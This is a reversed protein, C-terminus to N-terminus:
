TSPEQDQDMERYPSILTLVASEDKSYQVYLWGNPDTTGITPERGTIEVLVRGGEVPQSTYYSRARIGQRYGGEYEHQGDVEMTTIRNHALGMVLPMSQFNMEKVNLQVAFFGDKLSNLTDFTWSVGYVEDMIQPKAPDPEVVVGLDAATDGLWHLTVQKGILYSEFTPLITLTHRTGHCPFAADGFPTNYRSDFLVRVDDALDNSLLQGPLLWDPLKPNTLKLGFYSNQGFASTITWRVAGGEVEQPTGLPPVSELGSNVADAQDELTVDSGILPSDGKVKLELEYSKGRILQLEGLALDVKEGDLYLEFAQAWANEELATVDFVRTLGVGENESTLDAQVQYEGAVEPTLRCHAWGESDTLTTARVGMDELVSWVVNLGEVGEWSESAVVQVRLLVSENNGVVPQATVSGTAGILLRTDVVEFARSVSWESSDGEDVQRVQIRYNGVEWPTDITKRWNVQGPTSVIPNDLDDAHFIQIEGGTEGRGQILFRSSVRSSEAPVCIEPKKPAAKVIFSRPTSWESEPGSGQQKVELANPGPRLPKETSFTLIGACNAPASHLVEDDKLRVTILADPMGHVEIVPRTPTKSGEQPLEFQPAEPKEEEVVFFTCVESPDSTVGDVSQTVKVTNTGPAWNATPTFDRIEGESSFIGDVRRNADDYMHLIVSVSDTFVGTVTLVQKAAAPDPPPYIVPRSPKVTFTCLDSPDSVVGDVTQIVKVMNAGPTWNETPTFTRTEGTPSFTGIVKSSEENFMELLVSVSDYVGTITLPQDPLLPESPTVIEPKVAKATFTCFDSPESEVGGVRQIVKVTHRGPLWGVTPTFTRTEGESSFTGHVRSNADNYMELYVYVSDLSVGTITLSQNPLLPGSPETIAPKPAKVWFICRDSPASEVGNM